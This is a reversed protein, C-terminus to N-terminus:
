HWYGKLNALSNGTNQDYLIGNKSQAEVTGVQSLPTEFRRSWDAVFNDIDANSKLAFALEYDEGDTLAHQWAPQGSQASLQKAADAIPLSVLNLAISNTQPNALLNPLDKALGDSLDIMSIVDEHNALWQGEGLRPEFHLHKGLISGGLEGTVFLHDGAKAKGRLVPREAYGTLTLSIALDKNSGAIDGGNLTIGYQRCTDALGDVFTELWCIATKPPVLWGLFGELPLGGMAAIDSLNRKILKAAAGAPAVSDDFHKGYVVPDITVLTRPTHPLVACDDGMGAPAPPLVDGLRQKILRLLGAEGLHKFSEEPNETFPHM